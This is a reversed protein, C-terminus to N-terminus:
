FPMCKFYICISQFYILIVFDFADSYKNGRVRFAPPGFNTVTISKWSCTSDKAHEYELCSIRLKFSLALWQVHKGSNDKPLWVLMELNSSEKEKATNNWKYHRSHEKFLAPTYMHVFTCACQTRTAMSGSHGWCAVIVSFHNKTTDIDKSEM